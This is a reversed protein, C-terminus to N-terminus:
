SNLMNFKIASDDRAVIPGWVTTYTILGGFLYNKTGDGADLSGSASVIYTDGTAPMDAGGVLNQLTFPSGGSYSGYTTWDNGNSAYSVTILASSDVDTNLDNKIASLLTTGADNYGYSIDNGSVSVGLTGLADLGGTFPMMSCSTNMTNTGISPTLVVLANTTPDAIIADRIEDMTSGNNIYNITVDTGSTTASLTGSLDSGGTLYTTFDSGYYQYVEAGGTILFVVLAASPPDNAIVDRIDGYTSSYPVYTITVTNGVTQVGCVAGAVFNILINNGASGPTVARFNLTSWSPFNPDVLKAPLLPTGNPVLTLTISNGASGATVAALHAAYGFYYDNVSAATIVTVANFAIRISNTASGTQNAVINFFSNTLMVPLHAATDVNALSPTNTAANWTGKITMAGASGGSGLTIDADPCTITRKTGTLISALNFEIEKTPDNSDKIALGYQAVLPKKM